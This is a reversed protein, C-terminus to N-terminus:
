PELEPPAPPLASPPSPEAEANWTRFLRQFAENWDKGVVLVYNDMTATLTVWEKVDIPGLHGWAQIYESEVELSATTMQKCAIITVGEPGEAGCMVWQPQAWEMLVM